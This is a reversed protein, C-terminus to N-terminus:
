EVIVASKIYDLHPFEKKLYANGEQQIRPQSPGSGRPAGEGYEKYLKEVVSMDRVKGFPAFRMGDLRENDVFNIFFQTTRSNPRGSMAFTVTGKTNSQKVPDDPIGKNRWERNLASDGSIGAQAMFGDVVRFFAVDTYYGRKVLDFFRDAGNPSWERHVDIVIDGKTTVLKVAFSDPAKVPESAAKAASPQVQEKSSEEASGKCGWALGVVVAMAVLRLRKTM